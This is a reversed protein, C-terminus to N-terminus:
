YTKPCSSVWSAALQLLFSLSLMSWGVPTFVRSRWHSSRVRSLNLDASEMPDLGSFIVTGNKSIVGIKSSFALLVAGAFGVVLGIQNLHTLKFEFM